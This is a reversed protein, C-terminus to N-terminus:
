RSASQERPKPTQGPKAHFWWYTSSILYFFIWGTAFLRLEAAKLKLYETETIVKVLRGHSELVYQGNRIAPAAVHSQVLFVVFHVFFFVALLKVAPVTWGPMSDAFREWFSSRDSRGSYELAIVPLILVITGLHLLVAWSPLRDLAMGFFSGVYCSVSAALGLVSVVALCLWVAHKM